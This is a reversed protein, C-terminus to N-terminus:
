KQHKETAKIFRDFKKKAPLWPFGFYPDPIKWGSGYNLALMKEPECPMNSVAEPQTKLPLIDDRTIEGFTHPYVFAKDDQFWCPFLDFEVGDLPKLKFTLPVSNEALVNQEDLLKRLDAWEKAAELDTDAHLIVALDIDDDHEILKGDRVIGLLTGSNVFAEYGLTKLVAFYSEIGGFLEEANRLHLPLSYGHPTIIHPAVLASVRKSFAEFKEGDGKDERIKKLRSLLTRTKTARARDNAFILIMTEVIDEVCAPHSIKSLATIKRYRRTIKRGKAIDDEVAARISRVLLLEVPLEETTTSTESINEM